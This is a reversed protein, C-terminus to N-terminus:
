TGERLETGPPYRQRAPIEPPYRPREDAAIFGSFDSLAWDLTGTNIQRGGGKKGGDEVWNQTPRTGPTLRILILGGNEVARGIRWRRAM